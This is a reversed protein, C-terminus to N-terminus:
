ARRQLELEIQADMAEDLMEPLRQPANVIDLAKGEIYLNLTRSESNVGLRETAARCNQDRRQGLHNFGYRKVPWKKLQAMKAKKKAVADM